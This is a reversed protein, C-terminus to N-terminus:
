KKWVYMGGLLEDLSCPCRPWVYLQGWLQCLPQEQCSLSVQLLGEVEKTVVDVAECFEVEEVDIWLFDVSVPLERDPFEAKWHSCVVFGM